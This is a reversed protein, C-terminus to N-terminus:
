ELPPHPCTPVNPATEGAFVGKADSFTTEGLPTPFPDWQRPFSVKVLGKTLFPFMYKGHLVTIKSGPIYSSFHFGLDM